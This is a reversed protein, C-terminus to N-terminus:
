SASGRSRTFAYKFFMLGSVLMSGMFITLGVFLLKKAEYNFTPFENFESILALLMYFSLLMLVSPLVIGLIRFKFVIQLILGIVLTIAVYNIVVGASFWYFVVAALLIYEPLDLTIKKLDKM